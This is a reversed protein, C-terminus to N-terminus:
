LFVEYGESALDYIYNPDIGVKKWFELEQDTVTLLDEITDQDEPKFPVGNILECQDTTFFGRDEPDTVLLNDRVEDKFVILLPEIRKNFTAIARAVNYDGRM